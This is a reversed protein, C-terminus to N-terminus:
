FVAVLSMAAVETFRLRNEFDEVVPFHVLNGIFSM